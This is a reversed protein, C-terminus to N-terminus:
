PWVDDASPGCVYASWGTVPDYSGTGQLLADEPCVPMTQSASATAAALTLLAALLAATLARM